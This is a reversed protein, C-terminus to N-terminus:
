IALGTGWLHLSILKKHMEEQYKRGKPTLSVKRFEFTVLYGLSKLKDVSARWIPASIGGLHNNCARSLELVDTNGRRIATLLVFDKLDFDELM